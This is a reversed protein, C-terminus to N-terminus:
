TSSGVERLVPALLPLLGFALGGGAVALVVGPVGIGSTMTGGAASGLPFGLSSITMMGLWFRFAQRRLVQRASHLTQRL